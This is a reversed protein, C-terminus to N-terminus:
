SNNFCVYSFQERIILLKLFINNTNGPVCKRPYNPSYNEDYNEDYFPQKWNGSATCVERRPGKIIFGSGCYAILIFGVGYTGDPTPNYYQPKFLPPGKLINIHGNKISASGNCPGLIFNKQCHIYKTKIDKVIGM